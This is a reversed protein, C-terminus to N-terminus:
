STTEEKRDIIGGMGASGDEGVCSGFVAGLGLPGRTRGDKTERVDAASNQNGREVSRRISHLRFLAPAQM